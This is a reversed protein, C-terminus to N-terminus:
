EVAVPDGLDKLTGDKQIEVPQLTQIAFHDKPGLNLEVGDLMLSSHFNQLSEAAHLVGERSLSECSRKLTEIVAEALSQGYVTLTSVIPGGYTEM